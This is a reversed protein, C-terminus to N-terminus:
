WIQGLVLLRSVLNFTCTLLSFILNNKAGVKWQRLQNSGRSPKPQKNVRRCKEEVWSELRELGANELVFEEIVNKNNAFLKKFDEYTVGDAFCVRPYIPQFDKLKWLTEFVWKSWSQSQQRRQHSIQTKGVQAEHQHRPGSAINCVPCQTVLPVTDTDSVTFIFIHLPPGQTVLKYLM